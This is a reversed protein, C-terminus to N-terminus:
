DTIWYPHSVYEFWGIRQDIDIRAVAEAVDNAQFFARTDFCSAWCMKAIAPV